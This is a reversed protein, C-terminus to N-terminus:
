GQNSICLKEVQTINPDQHHQLDSDSPQQRGSSRKRHSVLLAIITAIFVCNLLASVLTLIQWPTHHPLPQQNNQESTHRTSHIRTGNSFVREGTNVCYYNGLEEETINHILLSHNVLSFKQKFAPSCYKALPDEGIARLIVVPARCETQMYWYVETSRTISPLDCNVTINQGLEVNVTQLGNVAETWLLLCIQLQVNKM